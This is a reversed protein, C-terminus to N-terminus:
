LMQFSIACGETLSDNWVLLLSEQHLFLDAAFIVPLEFKLIGFAAHVHSSSLGVNHVGQFHKLFDLFKQFIILSHQYPEYNM